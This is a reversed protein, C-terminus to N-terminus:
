WGAEIIVLYIAPSSSVYLSGKQLISDSFYSILLGFLRNQKEKTFASPWFLVALLSMVSFSPNTRRFFYAYPIYVAHFPVHHYEKPSHKPLLWYHPRVWNGLSSLASSHRDALREWVASKPSLTMSICSISQDLWRDLFSLQWLPRKHIFRLFLILVRSFCRPLLRGVYSFCFVNIAKVSHYAKGRRCSRWSYSRRGLWDNLCRLRTLICHTWWM